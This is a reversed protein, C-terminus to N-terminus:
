LDKFSNGKITRYENVYFKGDESFVEYMIKEVLDNQANVIYLQPSWHKIPDYQVLEDELWRSEIVLEAHFKSAMLDILGIKEFEFTVEVKKKTPWFLPNRRSSFHNNPILTFKM